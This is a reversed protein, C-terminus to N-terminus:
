CSRYLKGTAKSPIVTKKPFIGGTQRWFSFTLNWSQTENKFAEHQRNVVSWSMDRMSTKKPLVSIYKYSHSTMNAASSSSANKLLKETTIKEILQLYKSALSSVFYVHLEVSSALSDHIEISLVM